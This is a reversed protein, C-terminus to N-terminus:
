EACKRTNSIQNKTWHCPDSHMHRIYYNNNTSMQTMLQQLENLHYKLSEMIRSEKLVCARMANLVPCTIVDM